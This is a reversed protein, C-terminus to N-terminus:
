AVLTFYLVQEGPLLYYLVHKLLYYTLATCHVTNKKESFCKVLAWHLYSTRDSGPTDNFLPVVAVTTSSVVIWPSLRFFLSHFIIM